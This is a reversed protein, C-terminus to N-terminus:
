SFYVGANKLADHFKKVTKDDLKQKNVVQKAIACAFDVDIVQPLYALLEFDSLAQHLPETKHFEMHKRLHENTGQPPFHVYTFLHEEKKAKAAVVNVLLADPLFTGNPKIEINENIVAPAFVKEPPVNVKMFGPDDSPSILGHNVMAVGQDSIQFCEAEKTGIHTILTVFRSFGTNPNKYKEQLRAAIYIEEGSMFIDGHYEKGGRPLTTITWGVREMNCAAIIKDVNEANKDKLLKVGRIEYKQPPVYLAFVNAFMLTKGDKASKADLNEMMEYRGILYAAHQASSDKEWNTKYRVYPSSDKFSLVDCHRYEQRKIVANPPL